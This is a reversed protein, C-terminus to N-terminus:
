TPNCRAALVALLGVDPRWPELNWTDKDRAGLAHCTLQDLMTPSDAEPSATVMEQRILAVAAEGGTRAWATPEVALSRGGEREGWDLSAIGTTGLRGTPGAAETAGAPLLVLDPEVVEVRTPLGAADTVRLGGVVVGGEDALVVSGDDLVEVTVDAPAAVLAGGAPVGFTASGDPETRVTVEGAGRVLVTLEVQGSAVTVGQARVDDATRGAAPVPSADPSAESRVTATATATPSPPDASRDTAAGPGVGCGAAVLLVTGVALGGVVRSTRM